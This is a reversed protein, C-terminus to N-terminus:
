YIASPPDGDETPVPLAARRRIIRWLGLSGILLLLGPALWLLATNAQWRPRYLVFDGYRDLLFTKIEEESRGAELMQRIERRLDIALPATSDAITQNQCVLCRVENTLHDFILQQAPDALTEDHEIASASFTALLLLVASFLALNRM